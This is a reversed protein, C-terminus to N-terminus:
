RRQQQQQIDHRLNEVSSKIETLSAKVDNFKENTQQQREQATLGQSLRAEELVVVRKDMTSWSAMVFVLSAVISTGASILHGTNITPDWRVRRREHEPELHYEHELRRPTTETNDSIM